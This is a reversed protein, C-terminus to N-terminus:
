TEGSMSLNFGSFKADATLKYVKNCMVPPWPNPPPLSLPGSYYNPPKPPRISPRPLLLKPPLLPYCPTPANKGFKADATLKYVKEYQFLSVLWSLFSYNSEIQSRRSLCNLCTIKIACLSPFKMRLGIDPDKLINHFSYWFLNKLLYLSPCKFPINM